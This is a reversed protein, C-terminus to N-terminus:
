SPYWWITTIEKLHVPIGEVRVFDLLRCKGNANEMTIEFTKKKKKKGREGQVRDHDM